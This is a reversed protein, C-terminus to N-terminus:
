ENPRSCKGKQQPPIEEVGRSDSLTFQSIIVKTLNLKDTTASELVFSYM